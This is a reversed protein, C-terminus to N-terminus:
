LVQQVIGTPVSVNRSITPGVSSITSSCVNTTTTIPTPLTRAKVVSSHLAPGLYGYEEKYEDLYDPPDRITKLIPTLVKVLMTKIHGSAIRDLNSIM